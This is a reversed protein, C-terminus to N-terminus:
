FLHRSYQYFYRCVMDKRWLGIVTTEQVTFNRMEGDAERERQARVEEVQADVQHKYLLRELDALGHM